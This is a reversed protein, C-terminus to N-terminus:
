DGRGIGDGHDRQEAREGQGRVEFHNDLAFAQEVVARGDDQEIDRQRDRQRPIEAGHLAQDVSADCRARHRVADDIGHAVVREVDERMGLEVAGDRRPEVVNRLSTRGALPPHVAGLPEGVHDVAVVRVLEVEPHIVLRRIMEAGGYGTGGIVVAKFRKM